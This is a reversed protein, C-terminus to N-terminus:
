RDLQTDLLGAVRERKREGLKLRRELRPDVGPLHGGVLGQRLDLAPLMVQVGGVRLDM